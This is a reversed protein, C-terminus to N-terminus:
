EIGLQKELKQFEQQRAKAAAERDAARQKQDAIIQADTRDPGYNEVYIVQPPPATNVSADVFFIVVIIATILLALTGGLLHDRNGRRFFAKLDQFAARPSSPRPLVPM